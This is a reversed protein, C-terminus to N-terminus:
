VGTLSRATPTLDKEGDKTEDQKTGTQEDDETVPETKQSRRSEGYLMAVREIQLSLGDVMGMELRQREGVKM